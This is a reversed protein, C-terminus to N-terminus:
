SLSAGPLSVGFYLALAQAQEFAFAAYKFWGLVLLNAAVAVALLGRTRSREIAIGLEYNLAIAALLLFISPWHAWAYFILSAVLLISLRARQWPLLWYAAFTCALLLLFTYSTFLM